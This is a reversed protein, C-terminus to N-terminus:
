AIVLDATVPKVSYFQPELGRWWAGLVMARVTYWMDYVSTSGGCNSEFCIAETYLGFLLAPMKASTLKFTKRHYSLALTDSQKSYVTLTESSRTASPVNDMSTTNTTLTYSQNFFWDTFNTFQGLPAYCTHSNHIFSIHLDAPCDINNPTHHM